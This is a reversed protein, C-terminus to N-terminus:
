DKPPVQVDAVEQPTIRKRWNELEKLADSLAGHKEDLKEQLDSRESGSVIGGVLGQWSAGAMFLQRLDPGNVLFAAVLGGALLFLGLDVVVISLNNGPNELVAKIRTERYLAIYVVGAGAIGALFSSLRIGPADPPASGAGAAGAVATLAVASLLPILWWTKIGRFNRVNM